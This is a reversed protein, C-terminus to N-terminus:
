VTYKPNWYKLRVRKMDNDQLTSNCMHCMPELNSLEDTGGKSIPVIHNATDAEGGCAVCIPIELVIKRNRKYEASSYGM